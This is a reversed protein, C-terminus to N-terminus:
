QDATTTTSGCAAGDEGGRMEGFLFTLNIRGNEYGSRFRHRETQHFLASDFIVARNPETISPPHERLGDTPAGEVILDTDTNNNYSEFTWDSPPRATYVIMGGGYGEEAAMDAHLNIGDEWESDYKYAWMYRLPHGEMIRAHEPHIEERSASDLPAKTRFWHANRLLLDRLHVADGARPPRRDRGGGARVDRSDDEDINTTTTTTTMEVVVMGVGQRRVMGPRRGIWDKTSFIPRGDTGRWEPDIDRRVRHDCPAVTTYVDGIGRGRVRITYFLEDRGTRAEVVSMPARDLPPPAFGGGSRPGYVRACPIRSVDDDDVRLHVRSTRLDTRRIPISPPRPHSSSTIRLPVFRGLLLLLLPVVFPPPVWRSRVAAAIHRHQRPQWSPIRCPSTTAPPLLSDGMGPMMDDTMM